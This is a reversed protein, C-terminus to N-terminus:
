ELNVAWVRDLITLKGTDALERGMADIPSPYLWVKIDPDKSMVEATAADQHRGQGGGPPGFTKFAFGLKEKALRQSDALRRAQEELPRGDFESLKKGADNKWTGHDWAHFWFEVLGSDHRSRIWDAYAPTAEAL